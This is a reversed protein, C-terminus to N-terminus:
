AAPSQQTFASRRLSDVTQFSSLVPAFHARTPDIVGGSRSRGFSTSVSFAMTSAMASFAARASARSLSTTIELGAVAIGIRADRPQRLDQLGKVAGPEASSRLLEARRADIVFLLGKGELLDLGADSRNLCLDVLAALTRIAFACRTPALAKGGMQFPDLNDNLRFCQSLM